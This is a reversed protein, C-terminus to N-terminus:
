MGIYTQYCALWGVRRPQGQVFTGKKFMHPQSKNRQLRALAAQHSHILLRRWDAALQQGATAVPHTPPALQSAAEPITHQTSCATDQMMSHLRMVLKSRLSTASVSGGGADKGQLAAQAAVAAAAAQAAIAATEAQARIAAAV